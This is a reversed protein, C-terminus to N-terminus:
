DLIGEPYDESMAKDVDAEKEDELLIHVAEEESPGEYLVKDDCDEVIWAKGDWYLIKGNWLEEFKVWNKLKKMAEIVNM